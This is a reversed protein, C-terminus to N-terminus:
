FFFMSFFFFITKFSTFYQSIIKNKYHESMSITLSKEFYISFTIKYENSFANFNHKHYM